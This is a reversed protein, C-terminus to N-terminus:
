GDKKVGQSMPFVSYCEPCTISPDRRLEADTPATSAVPEPTEDDDKSDTPGQDLWEPDVPALIADMDDATVGISDLLGANATAVDQMMAALARDDWGGAQSTHNAGIVYARLHDDDKSAWGRQTPVCWEGDDDLVI